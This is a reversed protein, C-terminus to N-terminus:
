PSPCGTGYRFAGSNAAVRCDSADVAVFASAPVRKLQDLFSYTWRPDVAGNFYWDSGNDAVIM